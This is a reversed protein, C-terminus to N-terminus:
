RVNNKVEEIIKVTEYGLFADTASVPSWKNIRGIFDKIEDGMTNNTQRELIHYVEDDVIVDRVKGEYNLSLEIYIPIYNVLGVIYASRATQVAKIDKPWYGTIINCMDLIHPMLDWIPDKAESMHKWLFKIHKKPPKIDRFANSYRFIHGVMIFTRNKRAIDILEICDESSLCMPKEVLVPIGQKLWQKAVKYHTAPPTAIHVGDPYEDVGFDGYMQLAPDLVHVDEKPLIKEYEKVLKRGWRGFGVILIKM